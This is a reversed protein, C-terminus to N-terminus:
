ECRAQWLQALGDSDDRSFMITCLDESVWADEDLLATNLGQAMQTSGFPSSLDPRTAFYIDGRGAGSARDSHFTMLLGTATLRGTFEGEATAIESIPTPEDYDGSAPDLLATFIQSPGNRNSHFIVQSRDNAIWSPGDSTTSNLSEVPTPRPWDSSRASRVSMWVDRGGLTPARRSGFMVTLGDASLAVQGDADVSSLEAIRTPPAWEDDLAARTSMYLDSVGGRDSNFVVLLQDRSFAADDDDGMSSSLEAIIMPALYTPLSLAGLADGTPADAAGADAAGTLVCAGEICAQGEPCTKPEEVCLFGDKSVNANIVCGMALVSVALQLACRVPDM